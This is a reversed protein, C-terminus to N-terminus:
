LKGGAIVTLQKREPSRLLAMIQLLVDVDADTPSLGPQSLVTELAKQYQDPKLAGNSELTDVLLAFACAFGHIADGASADSKPVDAADNM